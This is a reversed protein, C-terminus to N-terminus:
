KIRLTFGDSMWRNYEDYQPPMRHMVSSFIQYRWVYHMYRHTHYVRTPLSRKFNLRIHFVEFCNNAPSNSKRSEKATCKSGCISRWDLLNILRIDASLRYPARYRSNRTADSTRGVLHCCQDHPLWSSSVGTSLSM